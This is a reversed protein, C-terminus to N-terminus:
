RGRIQLRDVRRKVVLVLGKGREDDVAAPVQEAGIAAPYPQGFEKGFPGCPHGKRVPGAPDGPLGNGRSLYVFRVAPVQYLSSEWRCRAACAPWRLRGSM